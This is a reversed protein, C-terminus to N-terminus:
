YPSCRENTKYEQHAIVEDSEIYCEDEKCDIKDINGVTIM